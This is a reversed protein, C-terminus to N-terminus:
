KSAALVLDYGPLPAVHLSKLVLDLIPVKDLLGVNLEAFPPLKNNSPVFAEKVVFSKLVTEVPLLTFLSV